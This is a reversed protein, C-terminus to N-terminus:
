KEGGDGYWYGAAVCYPAGRYPVGGAGYAAGGGAGGAGAGGGAGGGVAAGGMIGAATGAPRSGCIHSAACCCLKSRMIRAMACPEAIAVGGACGIAAAGGDGAGAGASLVSGSEASIRMNPGSRIM